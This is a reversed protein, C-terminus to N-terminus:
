IKVELLGYRAKWRYANVAGLFVILESPDEFVKIQPRGEATLRIGIRKKIKVGYYEEVLIAYGATQLGVSPYFTAPTKIDIVAHGKGILGFVDPTGAVGWKESAIPKEVQVIKIGLDKVAKKWSALWPAIQPDLAKEDLNNASWLACARHVAKGFDRSANLVQENVNSFDPLFGGARLIDSVCPIPQGELFYTHDVENFRVQNSPSLIKM